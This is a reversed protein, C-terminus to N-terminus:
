EQYIIKTEGIEVADGKRLLRSEVEEGNVFTGNKSVLDLVGVGIDDYFIMAHLRSISVDDLIVDSTRKFSGLGSDSPGGSKVPKKFQRSIYQQVINKTSEDLALTLDVNFMTTQHPDSLARGVVKCTGKELHFVMGKNPGDIINFKKAPANWDIQSDRGSRINTRLDIAEDILLIPIDDRVPYKLQCAECLLGRGGEVM